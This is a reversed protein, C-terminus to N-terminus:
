KPPEFLVADGVGLDLEAGTRLSEAEVVVNLHNPMHHDDFGVVRGIVRRGGENSAGSDGAPPLLLRDGVVLLGGVTVEFFGLFAARTLRDGPGIPDTTVLLEHVDFRRLARSREGMLLRDAGEMSNTMVVVLQAEVARRDSAPYPGLLPNENPRSM